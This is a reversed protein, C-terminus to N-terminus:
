GWVLYASCSPPPGSDCFGTNATQSLLIPRKSKKFVWFILNAFLKRANKGISVPIIKWPLPFSEADNSPDYMKMDKKMIAYNIKHIQSPKIPPPSRVM